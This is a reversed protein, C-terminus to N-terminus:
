RRSVIKKIINWDEKSFTKLVLLAVLYIIGALPILLFLNIDTFYYIFAAMVLGSIVPKVVIRHIPLVQLHKSVFYFSATFLVVNTMVTAIAAGNYSLRPILFFNLSVNVIACLGTSIMYSKQKDISVLLIQTVSILSIFVLTWILIQLATISGAFPAEYILLIIKDAILTVGTAIPLTIILLYKFSLRYSKILRDKSSKFYTSMLPFLSMTLAAPILSFPECLRYAASYLGVEADGMLISLMVVDIKFYIIWIVSTLALPLAEKFLYKWLGLDIKFQPRVFKRSFAYSLLTKVMESFVLVIMVQMLTGNSFIIWFILIASLVKFVLKAIINYEM